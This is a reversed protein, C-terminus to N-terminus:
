SKDARASPSTVSVHHTAGVCASRRSRWPHESGASVDPLKTSLWARGAAPAM